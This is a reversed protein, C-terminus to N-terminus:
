SGLKICAVKSEFVLSSAEGQTHLLAVMAQCPPAAWEWGRGASSDM